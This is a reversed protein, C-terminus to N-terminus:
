RHALHPPRNPHSPAMCRAQSALACPPIAALHPLSPLLVHDRFFLNRTRSASHQRGHRWEGPEAIGEPRDPPRATWGEAVLLMRAESATRPCTPGRADTFCCVAWDSFAPCRERLVTLTDAWAAWYAASGTAQSLGLGGLSAPLLHGYPQMMHQLTHRWSTPLSLGSHM